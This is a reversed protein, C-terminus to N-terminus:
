VARPSFSRASRKRSRPASSPDDASTSTPTSGANSGSRPDGRKWRMTRRSSKQGTLRGGGSVVGGPDLRRNKGLGARVASGKGRCLGSQRAGMCRACTGVAGPGGVARVLVLAGEPSGWNGLAVCVNRALGARGVRRIPSGRSFSDWAAEDLATELLAILSPSVTGPHLRSAGHELQVGFPPEGPARAAFAPESTAKTFRITFPCVEQTIHRSVRKLIGSRVPRRVM